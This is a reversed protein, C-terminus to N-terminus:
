FDGPAVQLCVVGLNRYMAVMRARDEFAAVIRDRDDQSLENYWQLKLEHDPTRDGSPRMRLGHHPIQHEELWELSARATDASRGTWIWIEFGANYLANCIRTIALHATDKSCQRFYGDWDPHEVGAVLHNRHDNNALTGDLDFIYVPKM